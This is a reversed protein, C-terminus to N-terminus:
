RGPRCHILAYILEVVALKPVRLQASPMWHLNPNANRHPTPNQFLCGESSPPPRKWSHWFHYHGHQELLQGLEILFAVKAEVDADTPVARLRELEAAQQRLMTAAERYKEAHRSMVQLDDNSLTNAQRLLYSAMAEVDAPVAVHGVLKDIEMQYSLALAPKNLVDAAHDRKAALSDIKQQMDGWAVSLPEGGLQPAFSPCNSQRAYALVALCLTGQWAGNEDAERIIAPLKAIEDRMNM